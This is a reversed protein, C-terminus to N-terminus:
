KICRGHFSGHARLLNINEADPMRARQFSGPWAVPERVLDNRSSESLATPTTQMVVLFICDTQHVIM